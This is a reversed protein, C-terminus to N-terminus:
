LKSLLAGANMRYGDKMATKKPFGRFHLICHLCHLSYQRQPYATMIDKPNSNFKLKIICPEEHHDLRVFSAPLQLDQDLLM